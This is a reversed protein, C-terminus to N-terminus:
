LKRKCIEINKKRKEKELLLVLVNELDNTQVAPIASGTKLYKMQTLYLDSNLYALLYHIDVSIHKLSEHLSLHKQKKPRLIRFGNTCICGDYQKTVYANAHNITGTSVGAIATILDGERLEYSARNPLEYSKMESFSEIENTKPNIMNIEVYKVMLDKEKLKESKESVIEVLNKLPIANNEILFRKLNTYEPCYFAPDIRDKLSSRFFDGDKLAPIFKAM